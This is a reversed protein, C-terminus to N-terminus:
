TVNPFWTREARDSVRGSRLHKADALFTAGNARSAAAFCDGCRVSSLVSGFCGVVGEGFGNLGVCNCDGIDLGPPPFPIRITAISGDLDFFQSYNYATIWRTKQDIVSASSPSDENRCYSQRAYEYEDKRGKENCWCVIVRLM